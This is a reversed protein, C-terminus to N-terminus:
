RKPFPHHQDFRVGLEVLARLTVERQEPTRSTLGFLTFGRARLLTEDLDFAVWTRTPQLDPDRLLACVLGSLDRTVRIPPSPPLPPFPPLVQQPPPLSALHRSTAVSPIARTEAHRPIADRSTVDLTGSFSRRRDVALDM